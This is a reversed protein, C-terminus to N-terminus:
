AGDHALMPVALQIRLQSCILPVLCASPPSVLTPPVPNGLAAELSSALAVAMTSNLGVSMLPASPDIAVDSGVLEQVAKAVLEVAAASSGAPPVSVAAATAAAATPAVVLAGAPGPAMGAPTGTSDGGAVTSALYASMDRITVYDFVLTPPLSTGLSVELQTTLAVAATSNVGSSMLPDDLSISSAADAGMLEAIASKILDAMATEGATTQSGATIPHAAGPAAHTTTHTAEPLLVAAVPPMSEAADLLAYALASSSCATDADLLAFTLIAGVASLIARLEGVVTQPLECGTLVVLHRAGRDLAHQVQQLLASSAADCALMIYTGNSSLGSGLMVTPSGLAAAAAAALESTSIGAVALQSQAQASVLIGTPVPMGRAADLLIYALLQSSGIIADVLVLVAQARHTRLLAELASMTRAPLVATSLLLLHRAGKGLAAQVQQQVTSVDQVLMVYSTSDTLVLGSDSLNMLAAAGTATRAALAAAVSAAAQDQVSLNVAVEAALGLRLSQQRQPKSQVPNLTQGSTAQGPRDSAAAFRERLVTKLIKGSGTIPMAEVVHVHSPVKYHALRARCWEALQRQVEAPAAAALMSASSSAGAASLQLQAPTKMVVAAAVLEGMVANPVGFVAVQAVAPHSILVAEVESCYINEGLFLFSACFFLSSWFTLCLVSSGIICTTVHM